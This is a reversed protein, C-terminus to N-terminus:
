GALSALGPPTPGGHAFDLLEITHLVPIVHRERDPRHLRHQRHRRSRALNSLVRSRATACGRPSSRSWFILPGASGCSLHGEPIRPGRLRSTVAQLADSRNRHQMSCASRYALDPRFSQGAGAARASDLFETVDNALASVRAAKAAYASDDRLLFGYDKIM